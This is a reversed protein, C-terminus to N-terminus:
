SCMAEFQEKTFEPPDDDTTPEDCDNDDDDEDEDIGLEELLDNIDCQTYHEKGNVLEICSYTQDIGKFNVGYITAVAVLNFTLDFIGKDPETVDPTVKINYFNKHPEHEQITTHINIIKPRIRFLWRLLRTM